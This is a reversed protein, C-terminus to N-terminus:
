GMAKVESEVAEIEKSNLGYKKYLQKNLEDVTLEFNLDSNSPNELPVFCYNKQVVHLGSLTGKILYRIFKTELYKVLKLADSENTCLMVVMNTYTLVEGPGAVRPKGIVTFKGDLARHAGGRDPNMKATFVKYYKIYERNKLVKDSSTWAIRGSSCIVKISKDLTKVDSDRFDTGLGFPSVNLMRDSVRLGKNNRWVKDVINTFTENFFIMTQMKGSSDIYRYKGLDLKREIDGGKGVRDSNYLKTFDYTNNMDFLMYMIGGSISVEPFVDTSREFNHIEKLHKENVVRDRFYSLVSKGGNTWRSPIIMTIYDTNNDFGKTIFENYLPMSDPIVSGGGTFEQYPPNGILVNFKM